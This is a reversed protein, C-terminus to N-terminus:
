RDQESGARGSIGHTGEQAVQFVRHTLEGPLPQRGDSPGVGGCLRRCFSVRRHGLGLEREHQRRESHQRRLQVGRGGRDRDTRLDRRRDASRRASCDRYRHDPGTDSNGNMDTATLTITHVGVSLDSKIFNGGTGINGDLSSTWELASGSLSGDEPDLASGVFSLLHGETVEIGDAPDAINAEPVGNLMTIQTTARVTNGDSDTAEMTITHEGESLDSRVFDTGIGIDGDIDSKWLIDFTGLVGDEPDTATGAFEVDVGRRFTTGSAPSTLTVVPGSGVGVTITVSRTLPDGNTYTGTLYITHTGASLDSRALTTGVGLAGDVDSEWALAAGTLSGIVPDWGLGLFVIPEGLKFVAGDSPQNLELPAMFTTVPPPKQDFTFLQGDSFTQTAHSHASGFGNEIEPITLAGDGDADLAHDSFYDLVVSTYRGMQLDPNSPGGESFYCSRDSAASSLVRVTSGEAPEFRDGSVPDQLYQILGGGTGCTEIIVNVFEAPIDSLLDPLGSTTSFVNWSAKNDGGMDYSFRTSVSELLGDHDADDIFAHMVIFLIVKDGPGLDATLEHIRQVLEALTTDWLYSYM